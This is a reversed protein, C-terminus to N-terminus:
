IAVSHPGKSKRTSAPSGFVLDDPNMLTLTTTTEPGRRFTVSEVYWAGQRVGFRQDAINVITDPAWVGWAGNGAARNPFTHGSVVLELTRGSRRQEAIYKRALFECEQVTRADDDLVVIRKSHGLAAEAAEDIYEGRLKGRGAKGGGSRGLVVARTHRVAYDNKYKLSLVNSSATSQGEEFRFTYLPTQNQNPTSLVFTGDGGCWLFIGALKYQKQLFEYWTTGLEAKITNYTVKRTTNNADTTQVLEDGTPAPPATVKVQVGSVAKRNADNSLVLLGESKGPFVADLAKRTIDAYTSEKFTQEAELYGDFLPAMFDRGRITAVAGGDSQDVEVADILGTQVQIFGQQRNGDPSADVLLKFGAGPGVNGILDRVTGAWGCRYSFAAPQQLVSQTVEYSEIQALEREPHGPRKTRLVVRDLGTDGLEDVRTRDAM